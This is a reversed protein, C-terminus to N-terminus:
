RGKLLLKGFSLIKQKLHEIVHDYVKEIIVGKKPVPKM